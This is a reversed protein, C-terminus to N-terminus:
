ESGIPALNKWGDFLATIKEYYDMKFFACKAPDSGLKDGTLGFALARCGGVCYRFYECGGCKPNNETLTKITTCVEDLYKGGQLLTQLDETKINGLFEKRADYFGSLQM